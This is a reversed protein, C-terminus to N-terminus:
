VPFLILIIPAQSLLIIVLLFLIPGAEQGVPMGNIEVSVMVTAFPLRLASAVPLEVPHLALPVAVM